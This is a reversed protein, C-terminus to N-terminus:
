GLRGMGPLRRYGGLFFVLPNGGHARCDEVQALVVDHDGAEVVQAVRCLLYGVCGPLLPTGTDTYEIEVGEFRDEGPESFHRSLDEQDERLLNVAFHGSRKVAAATRAERHFCVLIMVPDLSVSTISNATMGYPEGDLATTIVGVGTPFHGMVHRFRLADVAM